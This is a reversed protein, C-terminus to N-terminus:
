GTLFFGWMPWSFCSPVELARRTAGVFAVHGTVYRYLLLDVLSGRPVEALGAEDAAAAASAPEGAAQRAAQVFEVAARLGWGGAEPAMTRQHDNGCSAHEARQRGGVGFTEVTEEFCEDLCRVQFITTQQCWPM